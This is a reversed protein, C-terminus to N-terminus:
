VIRFNKIGSASLTLVGRKLETHGKASVKIFLEIDYVKEAFTRELSDDRVSYMLSLPEELGSTFRNINLKMIDSIGLIEPDLFDNIKKHNIHVKKNFHLIHAHKDIEFDVYDIVSERTVFRAREKTKGMAHKGTSEYVLTIYDYISPAALKELLSKFGDKIRDKFMYGVVLAVFFPLTFNGYKKQAWFAIVTAVFMSIGAASAYLINKIAKDGAKRKAKLSLVDYFYSKLYDYRNILLGNQVDDGPVSQPYHKSRYKLESKITNIIEVDCVDGLREYLRVLYANSVISTFEDGLALMEHQDGYKKNLKRFISRNKRVHKLLDEIEKPKSSGCINNASDRLMSRYGTIFKKFQYECGTHDIGMTCNTDFTKLRKYYNHLLYDPSKLRIIRSIDHYFYRKEYTEENIGMNDPIFLYLDINYDSKDPNGTPSYELKIELTKKNHVRVDIHGNM